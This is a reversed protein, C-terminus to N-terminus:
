SYKVPPSVTRAVVELVVTLFPPIQSVMNITVHLSNSELDKYEHANYDSLFSTSVSNLLVASQNALIHPRGFFALVTAGSLPISSVFIEVADSWHSVHVYFLTFAYRALGRAGRLSDCGSQQQGPVPNNSGLGRLVSILVSM